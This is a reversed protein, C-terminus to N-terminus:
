PVRSSHHQIINWQSGGAHRFVLTYRAPVDVAKGGQMTKFTYYGSNIAVDGYIRVDQPGFQVRSAPSKPADRFYEDIKQPTSAISKSTTGWLVADPAYLATIRKPDRSDYAAGWAATADLIQQRVYAGDAQIGRPTMCGTMTLALLGAAATRLNM